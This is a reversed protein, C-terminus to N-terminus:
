ASRRAHVLGSATREGPWEHGRGHDQGLVEVQSPISSEFTSVRSCRSAAYSRIRTPATANATRLISGSMISARPRWREFM